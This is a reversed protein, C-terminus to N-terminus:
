ATLVEPFSPRTRAATHYAEQLSPAAFRQRVAEADGAVTIRGDLLIAVHCAVEEAVPISHTSVLVTAGRQQEERIMQVLQDLLLPDLGNFPEDLVLLKPAGALAIALGVRQLLGKSLERLARGELLALGLRRLSVRMSELAIGKLRGIFAANELVTRQPYLAVREALCGFDRRLAPTIPQGQYLIQGQDPTTTGLLCGFLTSKGAGNPGLLALVSGARVRLDIGALAPIAGFRKQVNQFELLNM